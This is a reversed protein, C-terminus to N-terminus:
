KRKIIKKKKNSILNPMNGPIQLIPAVHATYQRHALLSKTNAGRALNPRCALTQYRHELVHTVTVPVSVASARNISPLLLVEKNSIYIIQCHFLKDRHESIVLIQIIVRTILVSDATNVRDRTSLSGWERGFFLVFVFYCCSSLSLGKFILAFPKLVVRCRACSTVPRRRPEPTPPPRKCSLHGIQSAGAPALAAVQRHTGASRRLQKSCNDPTWRSLCSMRNPSHPTSPSGM